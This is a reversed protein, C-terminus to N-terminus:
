TPSQAGGASAGSTAVVPDAGSGTSSADVPPSAEASAPVLGLREAEARNKDDSCFAVFEAPDNNFRYRVEAPMQDFSEKAAAIANAASHFDYVDEFDAYTPMRVGTPLEGTIHFRRLITNIDVEEAFHQQTLSKDECYLATDRTNADRDMNYFTRQVVEM